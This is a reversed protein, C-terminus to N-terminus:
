INIFFGQNIQKVQERDEPKLALGNREFDLLLKQVFRLEIDSLTKIKGSAEMNQKAEVLAKYIDERSFVDISFEALKAQAENSADRM